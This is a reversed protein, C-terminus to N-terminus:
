VARVVENGIALDPLLCERDDAFRDALFAHNRKPPNDKRRALVDDCKFRAALTKEPHRQSIWVLHAFLIFIEFVNRIFIGFSM